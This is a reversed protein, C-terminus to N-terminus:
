VSSESQMQQRIYAADYQSRDFQCKDMDEELKNLQKTADEHPLYSVLMRVTHYCELAQDFAHMARHIQALRFNAVIHGPDNDLALQCHKLATPFQKQM